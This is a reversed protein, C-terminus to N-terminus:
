PAPIRRTIHSLRVEGDDKLGRSMYLVAHETTSTLADGTEWLTPVQGTSVYNFTTILILFSVIVLSKVIFRAGALGDSHSARVSQQTKM